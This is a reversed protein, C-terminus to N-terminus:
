ELHKITQVTCGAPYHTMFCAAGTDSLHTPDSDSNDGFALQKTHCSLRLFRMWADVNSVLKETKHSPMPMVEPDIWDLLDDVLFNDVILSSHL